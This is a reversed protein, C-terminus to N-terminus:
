ISFYVFRCIDAIAASITIFASCLFIWYNLNNLVFEPMLLAFLIYQIVTFLVTELYDWQFKTLYRSWDGVWM